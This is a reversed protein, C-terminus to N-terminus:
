LVPVTVGPVVVFLEKAGMTRAVEKIAWALGASYRPDVVGAPGIRGEQQLRDHVKGLEVMLAADEQPSWSSVADEVHYALLAYLM